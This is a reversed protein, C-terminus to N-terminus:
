IYLLICEAHRACVWLNVRPNQTYVNRQAVGISNLLANYARSSQYLFNTHRPAAHLASSLSPARLPAEFSKRLSKPTRKIQAIPSSHPIHFATLLAADSIPINKMNTQGAACISVASVRLSFCICRRVFPIMLAYCWHSFQNPACKGLLGCNNNATNAQASLRMCIRAPGSYVNIITGVTQGGNTVYIAHSTLVYVSRARSAFWLSPLIDIIDRICYVLFFLYIGLLLENIIMAGDADSM